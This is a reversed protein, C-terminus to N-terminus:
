KKAKKKSKVPESVYEVLDEAMAKLTKISEKTFEDLKQREREEVQKAIHPDCGM